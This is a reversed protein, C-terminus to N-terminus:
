RPHVGGASTARQPTVNKSRGAPLLRYGRLSEFRLAIDDPQRQSLDTKALEASLLSEFRKAFM